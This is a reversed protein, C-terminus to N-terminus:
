IGMAREIIQTRLRKWNWQWIRELRMTWGFRKGERRLKYHLERTKKDALKWHHGCVLEHPEGPHKDVYTRQCGPVLCPIRGAKVKEEFSPMEIIGWHNCNRM